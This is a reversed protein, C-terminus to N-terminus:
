PPTLRPMRPDIPAHASAAIGTSRRPEGTTAPDEGRARRRRRRLTPWNGEKVGRVHSPLDARVDEEGVILTSERASM